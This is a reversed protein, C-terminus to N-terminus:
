DAIRRRQETGRSSVSCFFHHDPDIYVKFVKGFGGEAVADASIIPVIVKLDLKEHKPRRDEYTYRHAIFLWQNMILDQFGSKYTSDPCNLATLPLDTDKKGADMLHYLCSLPLHSHVCLALLRTAWHIVRDTFETKDFSLEGNTSKQSLEELSKDSNILEKITGESFIEDLDKRPIYTEQQWNTQHKDQVARRVTHAYEEDEVKHISLDSYDWRIALHFEVYPNKSCFRVVLLPIKESWHQESELIETDEEHQNDNRILRCLGTKRYLQKFELDKRHKRLTRIAESDFYKYQARGMWRITQNKLDTYSDGNYVLLIDAKVEPPVPGSEPQVILPDIDPDADRDQSTSSPISHFHSPQDPLLTQIVTTPHPATNHTDTAKHAQAVSASHPSIAATPSNSISPNFSRHKPWISHIVRKCSKKIRRLRPVPEQSSM